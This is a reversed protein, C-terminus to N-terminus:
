KFKTELKNWLEKNYRFRWQSDESILELYVIIDGKADIYSAKVDDLDFLFPFYDTEPKWKIGMSECKEYDEANTVFVAETKM